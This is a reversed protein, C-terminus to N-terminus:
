KVLLAGTIILKFGILEVDASKVVDTGERCVKGSFVGVLKRLKSMNNLTECVWDKGININEEAMAVLNRLSWVTRGVVRLDGDSKSATVELEGTQTLLTDREAKGLETEM